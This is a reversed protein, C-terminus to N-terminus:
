LRNNIQAHTHEAPSPHWRLNNNLPVQFSLFLRRRRRLLLLLLRRRLRLLLLLDSHFLQAIFLNYVWFSKEREREKEREKTKNKHTEAAARDENGM